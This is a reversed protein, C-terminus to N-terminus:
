KVIVFKAKDVANTSNQQEIMADICGELQKIYKRQKFNVYINMWIVVSSMFVLVWAIVGSKTM